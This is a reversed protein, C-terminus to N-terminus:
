LTDGWSDNYLDDMVQRDFEADIDRAQRDRMNEIARETDYDPDDVYEEDVEPDM